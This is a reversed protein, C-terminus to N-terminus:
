ETAAPLFEISFGANALDASTYGTGLRSAFFFTDSGDPVDFTKSLTTKINYNDTQSIPKITNAYSSNGSFEDKAFVIKSNTDNYFITSSTIEIKIRGVNKPIKIGPVSVGGNFGYGLFTSAQLGSGYAVFRTGNNGTITIINPDTGTNLTANNGDAFAPVCAINSTITMTATHGGCTATLTATGIGNITLVGANVSVVTPDSSAWVIPDTADEPTLTYEVEVPSLGTITMASQEFAIDECSIDGFTITTVRNESFDANKIVLTRSM